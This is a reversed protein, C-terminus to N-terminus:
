LAAEGPRVGPRHCVRRAARHRVRGAARDGLADRLRRGMLPQSRLIPGIMRPVFVDKRRSVIADAIATAVDEPEIM